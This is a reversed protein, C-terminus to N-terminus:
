IVKSSLAPEGQEQRKSSVCRTCFTMVAVNVKGQAFRLIGLDNSLDAYLYSPRNCVFGLGARPQVYHVLLLLSGAHVPKAAKPHSPTALKAWSAAKVCAISYAYTHGQMAYPVNQLLARM